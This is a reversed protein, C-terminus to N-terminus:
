RRPRWCLCRESDVPSPWGLACGGGTAEYSAPVCVDHGDVGRCTWDDPCTSKNQCEVTCVAPSATSLCLGTACEEGVACRLGTAYARSSVYGGVRGDVAAACTGAGYEIDNKCLPQGVHEVCAGESCDRSANCASGWPVDGSM